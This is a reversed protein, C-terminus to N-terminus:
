IEFLSTDEIDGYSTRLYVPINLKNYKDLLYKKMGDAEITDEFYAVRKEIKGPTVPSEWLLLVWHLNAQEAKNKVEDLINVAQKGLHKFDERLM